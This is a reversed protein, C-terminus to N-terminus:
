VLWVQLVIMLFDMVAALFVTYLWLIASEGSSVTRNEQRQAVLAKSRLYASEGYRVITVTINDEGGRRNALDILSQVATDPEQQEIIERIEQNDVHKTLGDTCLVFMDGVLLDIEYTDIKPHKESGISYLIVNGRPHNIAEQATIAGEEVLKAVLTQDRTVQELRGNRWHYARSDGVNGITATNGHIVLAVMTTAMRSNDNREAVMQRLNSNAMQMAEVIRGNWDLNSKAALYNKEVQESAFKSAIEGADAGGVGDAIVFLRGHEEDELASTPRWELYYDENHGRIQGVDTASAVKIFDKAM